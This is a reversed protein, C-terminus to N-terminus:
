SGATSSAVVRAASGSAANSKASHLLGSLSSTFGSVTPHVYTEARPTEPSIRRAFRVKLQTPWPVLGNFTKMSVKVSQCPLGM